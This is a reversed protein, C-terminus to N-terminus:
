VGDLTDDLDDLGFDLEDLDAFVDRDRRKRDDDDRETADDIDELADMAVDGLEDPAAVPNRWERDFLRGPTSPTHRQQGGSPFDPLNPLRRPPRNGGREGGGPTSTTEGTTTTTTDTPQRETTDTVTDSDLGQGTTGRQGGRSTEGARDQGRTRERSRQEGREGAATEDGIADVTSEGTEVAEAEKQLEVLERTSEDSYTQVETAEAVGPPGEDEVVAQQEQAEELLEVGELRTNAAGAGTASVATPQGQAGAPAPEPEHVTRLDADPQRRARQVRQRYGAREGAGRRGPREGFTPDLGESRGPGRGRNREFVRPDYDPSTQRQAPETQEGSRQEGGRQRQRGTQKGVQATEDGVFERVRSRSSSSGVRGRAARSGRRSARALGPGAPALIFAAEVPRNRAFDVQSLVATTGTEQLDDTTADFDSDDFAVGAAGAAQATGGAILYPFEVVGGGFSSIQGGVTDEGVEVDLLSQEGHTMARVPDARRFYKSELVRDLGAEIDEGQTEGYEQIDTGTEYVRAARDGSQAKAQIRGEGTVAEQRRDAPIALSALPSVNQQGPNRQGSTLAGRRQLSAAPEPESKSGTDKDQLEDRASEMSEQEDSESTDTTESGQDRRRLERRAADRTEDGSGSSSSSSSGSDAVDGSGSTVGTDRDQPQTDTSGGRPDRQRLEDRAQDTQEQDNSSTDDSGGRSGGGGDLSTM